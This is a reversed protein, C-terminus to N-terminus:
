STGLHLTSCDTMNM